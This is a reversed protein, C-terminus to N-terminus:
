KRLKLISMVRVWSEGKGTKGKALSAHLREIEGETDVDKDWCLIVNGYALPKGPDSAVFGVFLKVPRDASCVIVDPTTNAATPAAFTASAALAFTFATLIRKFM